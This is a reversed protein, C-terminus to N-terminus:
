DEFGVLVILQEIREINRPAVNKLRMGTVYFDPNHDERCWITEGDLSIQTKGNIEEPLAMRLYLTVGEEIPEESMLMMGETTLDVLHGVLDGTRRDFVRLYYLLHRRKLKRAQM